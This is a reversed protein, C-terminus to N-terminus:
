EYRLAELPDVKTARRAPLYCAVLAVLTLLSAVVVFTIPDKATVGFLLTALVRTLGVAGLLGIAVGVVVLTMGQRVVLKLVDRQRAGLAMRVGIEHTRQAVSYSMVGYIGTSALVLAVVAFLTLLTTRYRPGSVATNVWDDMTKVAAIPQDPDLARVEKRVAATLSTPDGKTRIVVNTWPRGYNPLYMAPLPNFELARHRIDGVIGIIEFPQNGIALILRKGLPEENPFVQQALLDSIIVLNAGARVEQETFNRGRLFPIRMAAFYERNVQRFDDDFAQDISVQPRGEVWFPTDNPQGSLPLESILGVNEVGPLGSIRSELESFFRGSKEETPYKERPLDLRM